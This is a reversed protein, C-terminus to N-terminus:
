PRATYAASEAKAKSSGSMRSQSPLFISIVTGSKGNRDSSRVSITGEHKAIIGRIVWLGLGTGKEAKTTFFPEFVRERTSKPIGCGSDGITLRVGKHRRHKWNLSHHVSISLRGGVPTAELANLLLNDVVQRIEDAFGLLSTENQLQHRLGIGAQKIKSSFIQVSEHVLTALAFRKPQIGVRYYSLSQRVIRSVRELETAATQVLSLASEDLGGHRQLLYLANTISSLPNNIEHAMSGALQGAAALKEIKRLREQHEHLEHAVREKEQATAELKLVAEEYQRTRYNERLLADGLIQLLEGNLMLRHQPIPKQQRAVQWVKEFGIGSDRALRQVESVQSFDVFAYGAVAAGVIEGNLMLSTGVVSLGYFQSVMITSRRNTQALCRRACELFIGPEYGKENFLQFLPTPHIPGLVARDGADYLKVTLHAAHAYSELARTWLDSSFLAKTPLPM